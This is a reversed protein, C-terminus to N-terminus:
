NKSDLQSEWFVARANDFTDTSNKLLEIYERICEKSGNQAGIRLWFCRSNEWYESKAFVAGIKLLSQHRDEDGCLKSLKYAADRNGKFAYDKLVDVDSISDVNASLSEPDLSELFAKMEPSVYPDMSNSDREQRDKLLWFAARSSVRSGSYCHNSYNYASFREGDEADILEWFEVKERNYNWFRFYDLVKLLSDSNGTLAQYQLDVINEKNVENKPLLLLYDDEQEDQAYLMVSGVLLVLLARMKKITM